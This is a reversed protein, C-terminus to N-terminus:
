FVMGPAEERFCFLDLRQGLERYDNNDNAPPSIVENM